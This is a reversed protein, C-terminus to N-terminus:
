WTIIRSEDSIFANAVLPPCMKTVFPSKLVAFDSSSIAAARACSIACTWSFCLKFAILDPLHVEAPIETRLVAAFNEFASSADEIFSM